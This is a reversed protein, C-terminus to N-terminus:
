DTRLSKVLSENASVFLPSNLALELADYILYHRVGLEALALVTERAGIGDLALLHEMSCNRLNGWNKFEEPGNVLAPSALRTLIRATNVRTGPFMQFPVNIDWDEARPREMDAIEIQRRIDAETRSIVIGHNERFEGLGQIPHTSIVIPPVNPDWGDFIPSDLVAEGVGAAEYHDYFFRQVKALRADGVGYWSLMRHAPYKRFDGYSALRERQAAGIARYGAVRRFKVMDVRVADAEIVKEMLTRDMKM